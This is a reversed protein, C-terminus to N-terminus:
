KLDRWMQSLSKKRLWSPEKARSLKHAKNVNTGKSRLKIERYEHALMTKEYKPYKKLIPDKKILAKTLKNTKRDGWAQYMIPAHGRRTRKFYQEKIKPM